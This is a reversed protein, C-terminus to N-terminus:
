KKNEDPYMRELTQNLKISELEGDFPKLISEDGDILWRNQSDQDALIVPMRDHIQEMFKNPTTTFVTFSYRTEGHDFWRSWLGALGYADQDKVFIEVPPLGKGKIPWEYFSNIPFICRQGKALLDAWLKKEHMTDVRANFMPFKAEFQRAGDWQCWWKAPLTKVLGDTRRAVIWAPETPRLNFRSEFAEPYLWHAILEGFKEARAQSARGCM